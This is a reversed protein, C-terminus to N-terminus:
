EKEENNRNKTIGERKLEQKDKIKIKYQLNDSTKGYYKVM